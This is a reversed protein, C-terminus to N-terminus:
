SDYLDQFDALTAHYHSLRSAYTNNIPPPGYQELTMGSAITGAICGQVISEESHGHIGLYATLAGLFANGCGTTDVIEQDPVGKLFGTYYPPLYHCAGSQLRIISGYPGCRLVVHGSCLSCAVDKLFSIIEKPHGEPMELGLLSLAELHNPSVVLAKTHCAQFQALIDPLSLDDPNPEWVLYGSYQTAISVLRECTVMAHLYPVKWDAPFDEINTQFPEWHATLLTWSRHDDIHTNVAHPTDYPLVITHIAIDLSISSPDFDKGHKVVMGVKDTLMRMGHVAYIGGGGLVREKKMDKRIIDDLILRSITACHLM